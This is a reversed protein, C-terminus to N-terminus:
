KGGEKEYAEFRPKWTGVAKNIVKIVAKSTITAGTITQVTSPDTTPNKDGKLPNALKGIFRNQFVTDREIKDGLGPTESQALVKFGTLAGTTPNFGVMLRVDNAFGPAADEVAVGIREGNANLGMFVKEADLLDVGAPPTRSLKGAVLYLTDLKAPGGLVEKVAVEVKEAAFKRIPPLTKQYTYALIGGGLAGFFALTFLLRATSSGADPTPSSSAGHSHEHGSM